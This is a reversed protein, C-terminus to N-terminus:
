FYQNGAKGFDESYASIAKDARESDGGFLGSKLPAWAAGDALKQQAIEVVPNTAYGRRSRWASRGFWSSHAWGQRRPDQLVQDQSVIGMMVETLEFDNTYSANDPFQEDFMPRLVHHLWEAVPTYLKGVRGDTFAALATAPDEDKIASRALVHPVLDANRFPLWPYTAEILPTRQGTNRDTIITDVLLTKFNDWSPQGTCTLGATFTAVMAPLARLALLAEIGGKIETSEACIARLANTWPALATADPAWRAAVQLSWCIPEVLKWYNTAVTALHAIRENSSAGPLNQTPFRDEDRMATIITKTEQAILEDLEIRRAPNLIMEKTLQRLLVPRDSEAAEEVAARTTAPSPGTGMTLSIAATLKVAETAYQDDFLSVYQLDGLARGAGLDWNPIPGDDFRVPMLWAVGPAMQRFEEIALTLEENMVSKHKARSNDSFCAIFVLTGSRIAERIKAKWNDGPALDARDRWYPIQAADLVKCLQDVQKTDEVVYSIFAHKAGASTM